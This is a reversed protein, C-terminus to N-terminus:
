NGLEWMWDTLTQMRQEEDAPLLVPRGRADILVGVRSEPITVWGGLGPIGMGVDSFQSPSLYVRMKAGPLMEIRKLASKFVSYQERLDDGGEDVELDLVRTEAPEPSDVTIVTGLNTFIDSDIVQIALLPEVEALTGLAPLVQQDDLTITTIGHPMIGDVAMILPQVPSPSNVM